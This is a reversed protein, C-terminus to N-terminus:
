MPAYLKINPPFHIANRRDRSLFSFVVFPANVGCDKSWSHIVVMWVKTFSPFLSFIYWRLSLLLASIVDSTVSMGLVGLTRVVGPKMKVSKSIVRALTLDVWVVALMDVSVLDVELNMKLEFSRSNNWVDVTCTETCSCLVASEPSVGVRTPPEMSLPADRSLDLPPFIIVAWCGVSTGIM